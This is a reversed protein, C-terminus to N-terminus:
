KTYSRYLKVIAEFNGIKQRFLLRMLDDENRTLNRINNKAVFAEYAPDRTPKSGTATESTDEYPDWKPEDM